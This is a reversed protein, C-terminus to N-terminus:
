GELEKKYKILDPVLWMELIRTIRELVDKKRLFVNEDVKEEQGM